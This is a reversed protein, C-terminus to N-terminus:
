IIDRVRNLVLVAAGLGDPHVDVIRYSVGSIIMEDGEQADIGLDSLLLEVVPRPILSEMGGGGSGAMVNVIERNEDFVATIDIAQGQLEPRSNVSPIYSVPVGFTDRCIEQLGTVADAWGNITM